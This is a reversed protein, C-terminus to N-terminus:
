CQERCRRGVGVDDGIQLLFQNVVPEAERGPFVDEVRDRPEAALSTGAVRDLRHAGTHFDVLSMADIAHPAHFKIEVCTPVQSVGIGPPRTPPASRQLRGSGASRSTCTQGPTRGLDTATEGCAM